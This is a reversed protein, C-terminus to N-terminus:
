NNQNNAQQARLDLSRAIPEPAHQYTDTQGYGRDVASIPQANEGRDLGARQAEAKTQNVFAGQHMHNDTPRGDADVAYIQASVSGQKEPGGNNIEEFEVSNNGDGGTRRNQNDFPPNDNPGDHGLEFKRQAKRAELLQQAELTLNVGQVQNLDQANRVQEKSAIQRAQDEKRRHIEDLQRLYEIQRNQHIANATAEDAVTKAQAKQQEEIQQALQADLATNAAVGPAALGSQAQQAQAQTQEVYFSLATREVQEHYDILANNTQDIQDRSLLDSDNIVELAHSLQQTDNQISAQVQPDNIGYQDFIMRLRANATIDYHNANDAQAKAFSQQNETPTNRFAAQSRYTASTVVPTSAALTDALEQQATKGSAQIGIQPVVQATRRILAPDLTLLEPGKEPKSNAEIQQKLAEQALQEQRIRAQQVSQHAQQNRQRFQDQVQEDLAAQEAKKQADERLQEQQILYTNPDSM